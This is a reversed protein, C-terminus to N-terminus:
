KKKCDMRQGRRTDRGCNRIGNRREETIGLLINGVGDALIGV